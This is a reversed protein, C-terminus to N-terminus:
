KEVQYTCEKLYVRGGAPADVTGEAVLKPYNGPIDVRSPVLCAVTDKSAPEDALLVAWPDAPRGGNSFGQKYIGTVSIKQGQYKSANKAVESAKLPGAKGCGLLPLSALLVVSLTLLKM